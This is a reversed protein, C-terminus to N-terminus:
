FVGYIFRVQQHLKLKHMKLLPKKLFSYRKETNKPYIRM